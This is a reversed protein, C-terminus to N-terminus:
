EGDGRIRAIFASTSTKGTLAPACGFFSEFEKPTLRKAVEMREVEIAEIKRTLRSATIQGSVLAVADHHRLLAVVKPYQSPAYYCRILNDTSFERLHFHPPNSEKYLAHVIGQVMGHYAVQTQLGELIELSEKKTLRHWAPPVERIADADFTAIGVSEGVDLTEAIKAYVMVADAPPADPRAAPGNPRYSAIRTVESNFHRVQDVDAEGIYEVDFGLSGEVFNRAVWYGQGIPAERGVVQVFRQAQKALEALRDLPLGREHRKVEVRIRLQAM